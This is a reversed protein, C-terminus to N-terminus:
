RIVEAENGKKKTNLNKLGNSADGQNSTAGSSSSSQLLTGRFGRESSRKKKDKENSSKKNSQDINAIAFLSDMISAEIEKSDESEDRYLVFYEDSQDSNPKGSAEDSFGRLEKVVDELSKENCSFDM